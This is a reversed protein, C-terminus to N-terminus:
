EGLSDGADESLPSYADMIGETGEVEEQVKRHDGVFEASASNGIAGSETVSQELFGAHGDQRSDGEIAILILESGAQGIDIEVAGSSQGGTLRGREILVQGIVEGVRVAVFDNM